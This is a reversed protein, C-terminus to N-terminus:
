RLLLSPMPGDVGDLGAGGACREAAEPSSRTALTYPPSLGPWQLTPSSSVRASCFGVLPYAGRKPPRPHEDHLDVGGNPMEHEDLPVTAPLSGPDESQATLRHQLHAPERQRRPVRARLRGLLRLQPWQQRHDVRDQLRIAIRRHLLPVRGLPNELPEPVLMAERTAVRNHLIVHPDASRLCPLREHRQGMRWTVALHIEPFRQHPDPANALLDVEEAQVQRLRVGAEHLGVRPFGRLGEQVAMDRGEGEEAAHREREEVVVGLDRHCFDAAVAPAIPGAGERLQDAVAQKLVAEATRALAVVLAFSALPWIHVAGAQL